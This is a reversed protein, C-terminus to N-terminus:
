FILLMNILMAKMLDNDFARTLSRFNNQWDYWADSGRSFAGLAAIQGYVKIM